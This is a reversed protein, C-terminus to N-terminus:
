RGFSLRLKDVLRPSIAGSILTFFALAIAALTGDYFSRFAVAEVAYAWVPFALLAVFINLKLWEDKNSTDHASWLYIPIFLISIGIAIWSIMQVDVGGLSASETAKSIVESVTSNNDTEGINKISEGFKTELAGKLLANIFVFFGVIEAPIYKAVRQLYADGREELGGYEEESDAQAAAEGIPVQPRTATRYSIIRSM